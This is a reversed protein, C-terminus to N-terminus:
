ATRGLAATAHAASRTVILNAIRAADRGVGQIMGSSFAFLFHLGVFYLGPERSVVGREHLPEGDPAFIPLDIWSFGPNFGTCWLVNAVDLTRGDELLPMGDRIGVVRPVRLVGARILRKPKVRILPAAKHLMKPRAMRGLPTDLSLLRHFVGRLVLRSLGLRAAVGDIKFPVVGPEQGALWTRHHKAADLAIEAGSNGAGVILVDGAQFQAPNRYELSHLQVVHRALAKAFLPVRRQQYHGMAVVVHDAEYRDGAASVILFRDGIRSLREVRVGSKVPLEFTRAYTELYDAMEDKTPFSFPPAPFPLGDLGNHRAPTFLRLSDWRQRWVDGVRASADLILCDVGLKALHYAVSLGAQGGGVVITNVQQTNMQAMDRRRRLCGLKDNAQHGSSIDRTRRRADAPIGM